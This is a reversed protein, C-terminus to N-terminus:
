FVPLGRPASHSNPARNEDYESRREGVAQPLLRLSPPETEWFNVGVAKDIVYHQFSRSLQCLIGECTQTLVQHHVLALAHSGHDADQTIAREPIGLSRLAAADLMRRRNELPTGDQQGQTPVYDYLYSGDPYRKSSLVLVGGSEIKSCQERMAEMPDLFEGNSNAGEIDGLKYVPPIDALEPARAIGHGVAFKSLWIEELADLQRRAKWVDLASGLYRSRGHPELTTPDLAFWWAREPGLLLVGNPTTLEIGAFSGEDDLVMRTLEFPLVDLGAVLHLQQDAVYHYTREFAARGHAFARLAHPLASRWVFEINEALAAARARDLPALHEANAVDVSVPTATIMSQIVLFGLRFQYDAEIAAVLRPINKPEKLRSHKLLQRHRVATPIGDRNTSCSNETMAHRERQVLALPNKKNQQM